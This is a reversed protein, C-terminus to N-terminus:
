LDETAEEDEVEDDDSSPTQRRRRAGLAAQRRQRQSYRDGTVVTAWRSACVLVSIGAVITSFYATRHVWQRRLLHEKDPLDGLPECEYHYRLWWAGALAILTMQHIAAVFGAVTSHTDFCVLTPLAFAQLALMVYALAYSGIVPDHDTAPWLLITTVVAGLIVVLSLGLGGVRECAHQCM